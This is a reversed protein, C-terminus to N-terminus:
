TWGFTKKNKKLSGKAPMISSQEMDQRTKDGGGSVAVAVASM